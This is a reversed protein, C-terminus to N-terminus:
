AKSYFFITDECPPPCLQQPEVVRRLVRARQRQFQWYKEASRLSRAISARPTLLADLTECAASQFASYFTRIAPAGLSTSLLVLQSSSSIRVRRPLMSSIVAGAGHSVGAITRVRPM